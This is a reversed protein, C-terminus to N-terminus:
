YILIFIFIFLFVSIHTNSYYLNYIVPFIEIKIFLIRYQIIFICLKYYLYKYHKIYAFYCKDDTSSSYFRYVM